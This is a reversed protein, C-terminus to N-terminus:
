YGTGEGRVVNQEETAKFAVGPKWEGELVPPPTDKWIAQIRRASALFREEVKKRDQKTVLMGDRKRWEGGVMVDKVDGVNSHLVVAAVADAWGLMNPSNGDFMVLDAVAGVKIVGVDDRRLARGGNRTALLFAQNVSMPNTTPIAWGELTRRYEGRRVTQLWLRAQTVIDSSFTFHTDVGLAAQDMIHPTGPHDHGYHMESEPTISVHHDHQRLLAADTPSLFSAHSFVIPFRATALFSTAAAHSSITTPGNDVHWPGGLSHTTFASLNPTDHALATITSVEAVDAMTWGDYAMGYQVLGNTESLKPHTSQARFDAISAADVSSFGYCWWMRVGSDVSASLSAASAEPSFTGHAHELISTVGANLAEYIGALQGYYIDDPTFVSKAQTYQGYRFFYEALTTNPALTRFATQWGHRHTDVFGPSIIKNTADVREVDAPVDGSDSSASDFIATIRDGTVLVSTKHLVKLSQSADDFSIVTGNELLTSRAM